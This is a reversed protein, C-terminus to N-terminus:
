EKDMAVDLFMECEYGNDKCYWKYRDEVEALEDPLLMEYYPIDEVVLCYEKFSLKEKSM